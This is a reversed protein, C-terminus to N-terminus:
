HLINELAEGIKPHKYRFGLSQLRRPYVKQSATMEAAFDKYLFRLAWVPLRVFHPRKLINAFYLSFEKNTIVEPAVANFVGRVGPNEMIEIYMNAVDDLHVWPFFQRGEGLPAGLGKKYIPLLTKILGGGKGLIYGNRIIAVRVGIDLAKLNAQEWDHVLQPLFGEGPSSKEDLPVNGANGYYGVASAGILVKPTFGKEYFLQILNKTSAIRTSCILEKFGDNWRGFISKGALNIVAHPLKLNEDKPLKELLNAKVFKVAKVRPQVLDISVVEYGGQILIESIRSGLFGSGGTIIIKKKASM